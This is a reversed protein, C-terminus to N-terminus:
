AQYRPNRIVIFDGSVGEVSVHSARHATQLVSDTSDRLCRISNGIGHDWEATMAIAQYASAVGLSTMPRRVDVVNWLGAADYYRQGTRFRRTRWLGRRRSRQQHVMRGDNEPPAKRARTALGPSM